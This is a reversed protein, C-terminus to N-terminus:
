KDQEEHHHHSVPPETVDYRFSSFPTETFLNTQKSHREKYTETFRRIIGERHDWLFWFTGMILWLLITWFLVEYLV